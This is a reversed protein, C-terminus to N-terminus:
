CGVSSAGNPSAHLIRDEEQQETEAGARQEGHDAGAHDHGVLARADDVEGLRGHRLEDDELVDRQAERALHMSGQNSKRGVSQSFM